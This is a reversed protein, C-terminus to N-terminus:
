VCIPDTCAFAIHIDRICAPSRDPNWHISSLSQTPLADGVSHSILFADVAHVISEGRERRSDPSDFAPWEEEM